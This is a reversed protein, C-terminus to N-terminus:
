EYSFVERPLTVPEGRVGSGAMFVQTSGSIMKSSPYFIVVYRYAWDKIEEEGEPALPPTGGHLHHGVFYFVDIQDLVVYIGLSILHFRGGQYNRPHDSLSVMGSMSCILDGLDRHIGGFFGQEVLGEALCFHTNLYVICSCIRVPTM